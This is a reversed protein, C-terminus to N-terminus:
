KSFSLPIFRLSFFWFSGKSTWNWGEEAGDKMNQIPYPGNKFMVYISTNPQKSM